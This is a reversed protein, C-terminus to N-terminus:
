TFPVIESGAVSPKWLASVNAALQGRTREFCHEAGDSWEYARGLWLAHSAADTLLTKNYGTAFVKLRGDQAMFRFFGEAVGPCASNFVDDAFIVGGPRLLSAALSMDHFVPDADHGADVSIFGYGDPSYRALDACGLSTTDSIVLEANVGNSVGAINALVLDKVTELDHGTLPNNLGNWMADVGVVPGEFLAAALALLKGKFVGFELVGPGPDAAAIRQMLLAAEPSLWGIVKDWAGWNIEKM